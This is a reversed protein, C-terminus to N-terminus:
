FCIVTDAFMTIDKILSQSDEAYAFLVLKGSFSHALTILEHIFRMLTYIDFYNILGTIRDFFVLERNKDRFLYAFAVRLETLSSPSSIFICNDAAPPVKKTATITDVFYFKDIMLKKKKFKETVNEISDQISIYGLRKGYKQVQSLARILNEQADSSSTIFLLIRNTKVEALFNM